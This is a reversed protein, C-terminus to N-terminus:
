HWTKSFSALITAIILAFQWHRLARKLTACWERLVSGERELREHERLDREAEGHEVVWDAGVEDAADDLLEAAGGECM